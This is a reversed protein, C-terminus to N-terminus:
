LAGGSPDLEDARDNLVWAVDDMGPIEALRRLEAAVIFPAATRLGAFLADAESAGTHRADTAALLAQGAALGSIRLGSM